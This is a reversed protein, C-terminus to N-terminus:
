EWLLQEPELLQEPREITALHARALTLLAQVKDARFCKADVSVLKKKLKVVFLCWRDLDKSIMSSLTSPAIGMSEAIASQTSELRCAQLLEAAMARALHDDTTSPTITDMSNLEDSETNHRRSRREEPAAFGPSDWRRTRAHRERTQAARHTCTLAGAISLFHARVRVGPRSPAALAGPPSLNNFRAPRQQPEDIPV